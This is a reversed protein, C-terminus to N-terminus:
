DNDEKLRIKFVSKNAIAYEDGIKDNGKRAESERTAYFADVITNYQIANYQTIRDQSNKHHGRKKNTRTELFGCNTTV